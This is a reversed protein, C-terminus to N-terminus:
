LEFTFSTMIEKVGFNNGETQLAIEYCLYIHSTTEWKFVYFHKMKTNTFQYTVEQVSIM